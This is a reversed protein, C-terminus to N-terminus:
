RLPYPWHYIDTVLCNHYLHVVRCIPFFPLMTAPNTYNPAAIKDYTNPPCRWCQLSFVLQWLDIVSHSTLIGCLKLPFCSANTKNDTRFWRRAKDQIFSFHMPPLIYKCINYVYVRSYNYNPFDTYEPITNNMPSAFLCEVSHCINQSVFTHNRFEHSWLQALTHWSIGQPIHIYKLCATLRKSQYCSHVM